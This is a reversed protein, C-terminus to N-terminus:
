SAGGARPRVGAVRAAGEGDGTARLAKV